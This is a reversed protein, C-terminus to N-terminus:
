IGFLKVAGLQGFLCHCLLPIIVLGFSCSLLYRSVNVGQMCGSWRKDNDEVNEQEEYEYDVKVIVKDVVM